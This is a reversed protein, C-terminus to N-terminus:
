ACVKFNAATKLSVSISQVLKFEQLNCEQSQRFQETLQFRPSLALRQVNAM